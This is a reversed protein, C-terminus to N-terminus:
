VLMEQTLGPDPVSSSSNLTVQTWATSSDSSTDASALWCRSCRPELRQDVRQADGAAAASDIGALDAWDSANARRIIFESPDESSM